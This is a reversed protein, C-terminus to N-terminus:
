KISEYKANYRSEYMMQPVQVLVGGCMPNVFHYTQNKRYFSDLNTEVNEILSHNPWIEYHQVM